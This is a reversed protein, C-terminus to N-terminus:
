NAIFSWLNRVDYLTAAEQEANLAIQVLACFTAFGTLCGRRIGYV